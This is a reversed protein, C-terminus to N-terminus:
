RQLPARLYPWTWSIGYCRPQSNKHGRRRLGWNRPHNPVPGPTLSACTRRLLNGWLSTTARRSIPRRWSSTRKAPWPAGTRTCSPLLWNCLHRPPAIDLGSSDAQPIVFWSRVGAKQIHMREVKAKQLEAQLKELVKWSSTGLSAPLLPAKSGDAPREESRPAEVQSDGSAPIDTEVLSTLEFVGADAGALSVQRRM